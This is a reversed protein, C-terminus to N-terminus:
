KKQVASKKRHVDKIKLLDLFIMRLTAIIPVGILIGVFGFLSGFVTISVLVYVPRIGVTQGVIRPQLFNADFQQAAVICVLTILAKVWGDTVLIFIAVAGCSITAGFYPILNCLGILLGFLPAYPVGLILLIVSMLLSVVMSDLFQSYIYRYFISSIRSTYAYLQMVKKKPFILTLAKGTVHILHERGLLMYVSIILAVVFDLLASGFKFVGGAWRSLQSLDFRALLKTISFSELASLVDLGFFRGEEDLYRKIFRIGSNYYKEANNVFDILNKVIWPLIFSLLLGIIVLFIFYSVLVSWGRAHSNLFRVKVASFKKELWNQPIFLIFAFIFGIIVPGAANLLSLLIRWITPLLNVAKNFVIVAAIFLFAPIWFKQLNSKDFWKM